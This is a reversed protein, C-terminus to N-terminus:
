LQSLQKVQLRGLLKQLAKSTGQQLSVGARVIVEGRFLLNTRAM